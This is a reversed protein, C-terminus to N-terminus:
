HPEQSEFIVSAFPIPKLLVQMEKVLCMIKIQKTSWHLFPSMLPM